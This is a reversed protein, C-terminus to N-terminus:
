EALSFCLRRWLLTTCTRSALSSCSWARRWGVALTHSILVEPLFRTRRFSAQGIPCLTLISQKSSWRRHSSAVAAATACNKARCERNAGVAARSNIACSHSVMDASMKDIACKGMGYAVNVAYLVCGPSNSNVVLGRGGKQMMPVALMTAQFLIYVLSLHLMPLYPGCQV